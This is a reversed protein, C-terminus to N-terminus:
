IEINVIRWSDGSIKDIRFVAEEFPTSKSIGELGFKLNEPNIDELHEPHGDHSMSIIGIELSVSKVKELKKDESIKKLEDMIEKALLFDHM